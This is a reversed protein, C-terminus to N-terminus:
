RMFARTAGYGIGNTIGRRANRESCLGSPSIIGACLCFPLSIITIVTVATIFMHCLHFSECIAIAGGIMLDIVVESLFDDDDDEARIFKPLITLMITFIFLIKVTNKSFM